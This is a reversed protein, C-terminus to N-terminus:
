LYRDHVSQRRRHVVHREGEHCRDPVGSSARCVTSSSAFADAPCAASTGTCSDTLDCVGASGRCVTTSPAFTNGPCATSTGTCSEAPDCVGASARCVTTSAAFTNG